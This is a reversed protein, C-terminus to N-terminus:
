VLGPPAELLLAKWTLSVRTNGQCSGLSGKRRQKLRSVTLIEGETFLFLLSMRCSSQLSHIGELISQRSRLISLFNVCLWLIGVSLNLVCQLVFLRSLFTVVGQISFSQPVTDRLVLLGVFQTKWFLRLELYHTRHDSILFSLLVFM